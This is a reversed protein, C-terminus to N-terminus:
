KGGYLLPHTAVLVALRRWRTRELLTFAYEEPTVSSLYYPAQKKPPPNTSNPTHSM